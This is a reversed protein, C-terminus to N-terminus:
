RRARCPSPDGRPRASRARRRTRGGPGPRPRRTLRPQYGPQSRRPRQDVRQGPEVLLVISQASTVRAREVVDSAGTRVVSSLRRRTGPDPASARRSGRSAPPSPRGAAPRSTASRAADPARRRQPRATGFGRCPPRALLHVNPQEGRALDLHVVAAARDPRLVGPALPARCRRM